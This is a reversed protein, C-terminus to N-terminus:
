ITKDMLTASKIEDLTMAKLAFSEFIFNVYYEAVNGRSPPTFSLRGHKGLRTQISNQIVLLIAATGM